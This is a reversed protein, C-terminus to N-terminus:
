SRAILVAPTVVGPASPAAGTEGGLAGQRPFM